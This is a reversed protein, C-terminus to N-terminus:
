GAHELPRRDRMCQDRNMALGLFLPRVLGGNKIRLLVKLSAHDDLRCLEGRREILAIQRRKLM